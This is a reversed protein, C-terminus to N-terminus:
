FFLGPNFQGRSDAVARRARPLDPSEGPRFMKREAKFFVFFLLNSTSLVDFRSKKV